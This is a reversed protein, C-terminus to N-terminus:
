PILPMKNVQDSDFKYVICPLFCPAFDACFKRGNAPKKRIRSFAFVVAFVTADLPEGNKMRFLLM